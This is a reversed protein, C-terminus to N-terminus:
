RYYYEGFISFYSLMSWSAPIDTARILYEQCRSHLPLGDHLYKRLLIACIPLHVLSPVVISSRAQITPRSDCPARRSGCASVSLELRLVQIVMVLPFLQVM